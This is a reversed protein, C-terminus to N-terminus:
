LERYDPNSRFALNESEIQAISWIVGAGHDATVGDAEKLFERLRTPVTIGLKVEAAAVRSPDVSVTFKADAALIAIQDKLSPM